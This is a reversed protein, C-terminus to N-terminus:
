KCKDYKKMMFFFITLFNCILKAMIKCKKLESKYYDKKM